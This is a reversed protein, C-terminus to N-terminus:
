LRTINSPKSMEYVIQHLHSAPPASARDVTDTNYTGRSIPSSFSKHEGFFVFYAHRIYATLM